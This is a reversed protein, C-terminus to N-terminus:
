GEKKPFYSVASRLASPMEARERFEVTGSGVKTGSSEHQQQGSRRCRPKGRDAGQGCTGIMM